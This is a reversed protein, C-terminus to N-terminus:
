LKRSQLLKIANMTHGNTAGPDNGGHGAALVVVTPDQLLSLSSTRM